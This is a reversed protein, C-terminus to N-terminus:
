DPRSYNGSRTPPHHTKRPPQLLHFPSVPVHMSQLGIEPCCGSGRNRFPLNARWTKRFKFVHRATEQPMWYHICGWRPNSPHGVLPPIDRIQPSEIWLSIRPPERGPCLSPIGSQNSRVGIRSWPLIPHPSRKATGHNLRSGPDGKGPPTATM